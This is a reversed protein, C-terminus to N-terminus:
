SNIVRTKDKRSQGRKAKVTFAIQIDENSIIKLM